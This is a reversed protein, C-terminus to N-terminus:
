GAAARCRRPPRRRSPRRRARGARARDRSRRASRALQDLPADHARQDARAKRQLAGGLCQLLDVLPAGGALDDELHPSPSRASGGRARAARLTQVREELALDGRALLGVVALEQSRRGTSRAGRSRPASPWPARPPATSGREAPCGRPRRAADLARPEGFTSYAGSASRMPRESIAERLTCSCRARVGAVHLHQQVEAGGLLVLAPEHRQEVPLDARREAHGLGVDGGRVRGVHLGGRREVALLHHEVPALPPAGADPVGVAPHRDEHPEGVGGGVAVVLVRHHEDREVRGPHLDLPHEGRHAEVVGGAAM